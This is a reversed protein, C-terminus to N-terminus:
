QVVFSICVPILLLINILYHILKYIRLCNQAPAPVNGCKMAFEQFSWENEIMVNGSQDRVKQRKKPKKNKLELIRQQLENPSVDVMWVAYLDFCSCTRDDCIVRVPSCAIWSTEKFCFLIRTKCALYISNEIESSQLTM